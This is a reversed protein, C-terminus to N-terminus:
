ILMEWFQLDRAARRLTCGRGGLVVELEESVVVDVGEEFVDALVVEGDIVTEV